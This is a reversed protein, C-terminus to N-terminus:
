EWPKLAGRAEQRLHMEIRRLKYRVSRLKQRRRGRFLRDRIMESVKLRVVRYDDAMGDTKSDINM